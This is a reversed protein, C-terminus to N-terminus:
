FFINTLKELEIRNCIKYKNICKEVKKNFVATKITNEVLECLNHFTREYCDRNVFANRIPEVSDICLVMEFCRNRQSDSRAPFPHPLPPAASSLSDANLHLILSTGIRVADLVSVCGLCWGVGTQGTQILRIRSGEDRAPEGDGSRVPGCGRVPGSRHGKLGRPPHLQRQQEEAHENVPCTNTHWCPANKSSWPNNNKPNLNIEITRESSNPRVSLWIWIPNLIFPLVLLLNVM